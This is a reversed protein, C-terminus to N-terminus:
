FSPRANGPFEGQVNELAEVEPFKYTGRKEFERLIYNKWKDPDDEPDLEVPPNGYIYEILLRNFDMDPNPIDLGYRSTPDFNLAYDQIAKGFEPDKKWLERLKAEFPTDKPM